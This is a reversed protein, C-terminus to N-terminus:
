KFPIMQDVASENLLEQPDYYVYSSANLGNRGGVHIFQDGFGMVLLAFALGVVAILPLFGLVFSGGLQLLVSARPFLGELGESVLARSKKLQDPQNANSKPLDYYPAKRIYKEGTLTQRKDDAVANSIGRRKLEQMFLSEVQTKKVQPQESEFPSPQNAQDENKEGDDKNLQCKVQPFKLRSSQISIKAMRKQSNFQSQKSPILKYQRFITPTLM